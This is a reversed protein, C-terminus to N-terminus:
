SIIAGLILQRKSVRRLAFTFIAIVVTAIATITGDHVELWCLLQSLM